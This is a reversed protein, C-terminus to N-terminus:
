RVLRADDEHATKLPQRSTTEWSDETEECSEIDGPKALGTVGRLQVTVQAGEGNRLSLTANSATGDPLFVIADSWGEALLEDEEDSAEYPEDAVQTGAFPQVPLPAFIVGEPLDAETADFQLPKGPQASEDAPTTPTRGAARRGSLNGSGVATSEWNDDARKAAIRFRGQGARYRFELPVGSEMATLRARALEVRLQQASDRLRNKSMSSRLAPWALGAMLVVIALVLLMELMTFGTSPHSPRRPHWQRSARWHEEGVDESRWDTESIM